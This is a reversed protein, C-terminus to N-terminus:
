DAKGSKRVPAGSAMDTTVYDLGAQKWAGFGGDLHAIRDAGSALTRRAMKGSRASSGCMLVLRKGADEPLFRPDFFAMPLLLAGEVHEFAYEAPTRVDVLVVRGNGLGESVEQPTWTELEGDETMETKM